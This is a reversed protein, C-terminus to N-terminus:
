GTYVITLRTTLNPIFLTPCFSKDMSGMNVIKTSNRTMDETIDKPKQQRM